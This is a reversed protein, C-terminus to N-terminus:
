KLGAARSLSSASAHKNKVSWTHDVLSFKHIYVDNGFVYFNDKHTVPVNMFSSPNRLPPGEIFFGRETNLIYSNKTVLNTKKSKGGFIMIETESIQMALSMYSPTFFSQNSCPPMIEWRDFETSYIEIQPIIQQQGDRGGFAYIYKNDFTCLAAGARGINLNAIPSWINQQPDFKECSMNCQNHVFSGIAYIHGNLLCLSHDARPYIM